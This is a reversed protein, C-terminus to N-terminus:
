GLSKDGNDNHLARTISDAEQRLKSAAKLNAVVVVGLVVIIIFLSILESVLSDGADLTVLIRGASIAVLGIALTGVYWYPAKQLLKEQRLLESRHVKLYDVTSMTPDLTYQTRGDRFLRFSIYITAVIIELAGLRGLLNEQTIGIGAFALIVVLGALWELLNRRRIKREFKRASSQISETSPKMEDIMQNSWLRSFHFFDNNPNKMKSEM